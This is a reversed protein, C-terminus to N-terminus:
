RGNNENDVLVGDLDISDNLVRNSTRLSPRHHITHSCHHNSNVPVERPGESDGDYGESWEWGGQGKHRVVRV